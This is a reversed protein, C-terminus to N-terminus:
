NSIVWPDLCGRLSVGAINKMQMAWSSLFSFFRTECFFITELSRRADRACWGFYNAGAGGSCRGFWLCLFIIDGRHPGAPAAATSLRQPRTPLLRPPSSALLLLGRCVASEVARGQNASTLPRFSVRRRRIRRALKDGARWPFRTTMPIESSPGSSAPDVDDHGGDLDLRRRRLEGGNHLLLVPTSAAPSPPPWPTAVERKVTAQTAPTSSAEERGGGGRRSPAAARSSWCQIRGGRPSGRRATSAAEVAVASPPSPRDFFSAAPGSPFSAVHHLGSRPPSSSPSTSLQM